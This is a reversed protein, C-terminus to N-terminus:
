MISIQGDKLLIVYHNRVERINKLKPHNDIADKIGLSGELNIVADQQLFLAQLLGYVALYCKGTDEGSEGDLYAAVALEADEIVDLSSCLQNFLAKNKTIQSQTIPKIVLDRIQETQENV